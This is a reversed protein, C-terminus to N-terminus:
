ADVLQVEDGVEGVDGGDEVMADEATALDTAASNRVDGNGLLIEAVLLAVLADPVSPGSACPRQQLVGVEVEMGAVRHQKLPEDVLLPSRATIATAAATSSRSPTRTASRLAAAKALKWGGSCAM